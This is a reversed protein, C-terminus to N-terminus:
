GGSFDSSGSSSSEGDVVGIELSVSQFVDFVQAMNQTSPTVPLRDPGREWAPFRDPHPVVPGRAHKASIVGTGPHAEARGTGSAGSFSDWFERDEPSPQPSPSAARYSIGNSLM